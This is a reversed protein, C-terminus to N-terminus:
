DAEVLYIRARGELSNGIGTGGNFQPMEYAGGILVPEYEPRDIVAAYIEPSVYGTGGVGGFGCVTGYKSEDTKVYGTSQGGWWGGGGGSSGHCSQGVGQAYGSTQTSGTLNGYPRGNRHQVLGNSVLGGADGPTNCGTDIPHVAGGGGGAVALTGEPNWTGKVKPNTSAVAPNNTTSIHTMGGGSGSHPGASCTTTAGGGNYGGKTTNSNVPNGTGGVFVYLEQGVEAHIWCKTYGGRGAIYGDNGGLGGRAGWLQVEYWGNIPARFIQVDNICYYESQYYIAYFTVPRTIKGYKEISTGSGDPKTNWQVFTFNEKEGQLGTASAQNVSYAIEGKNNGALAKETSTTGGSLKGGNADFTVNTKWNAYLTLDSVGSDRGIANLADRDNYQVGSGDPKTNWGSFTYDSAALKVGGWVLRPRVALRM